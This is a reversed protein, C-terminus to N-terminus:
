SPGDAPMEKNWTFNLLEIRKSPDGTWNATLGVDQLVRVAAKAASAGPEGGETTFSGHMLHLTGPGFLCREIDQGHCGLYHVVGAASGGDMFRETLDDFLDNQTYASGDVGGCVFSSAVLRDFAQRLREVDTPRSWGASAEVRSRWEDQAFGKCWTTSEADDLGEGELLDDIEILLDSWSTRGAAVLSRVSAELHQQTEVNM